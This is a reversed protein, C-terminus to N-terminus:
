RLYESLYAQAFLTFESWIGCFTLVVSDSM